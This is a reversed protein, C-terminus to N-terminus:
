SILGHQYLGKEDLLYLSASTHVRVSSSTRLVRNVGCRLDEADVEGVDLGFHGDGGKRGEWGRVAVSVCGDGVLM